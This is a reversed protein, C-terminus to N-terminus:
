RQLSGELRKQTELDGSTAVLIWKDWEYFDPTKLYIDMTSDQLLLLDSHVPGEGGADACSGAALKRSLGHGRGSAATGVLVGAEDAATVQRLGPSLHAGRPLNWLLFM